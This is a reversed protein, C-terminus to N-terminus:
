NEHKLEQRKKAMGLIELLAEKRAPTLKKIRICGKGIASKGFVDVYDELVSEGDQWLATYIHVANQQQKLCVRPYPGDYTSCKYHFFYWGLGTFKGSEFPEGTKQAQKEIIDKIEGYLGDM